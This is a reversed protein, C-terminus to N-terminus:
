VCVAGTDNTLTKHVKNIKNLTSYDKPKYGYYKKREERQNKSDMSYTYETYSYINELDFEGQVIMKEKM